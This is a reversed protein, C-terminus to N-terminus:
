VSPMPGTYAALRRLSPNSNLTSNTATGMSDITYVWGDGSVVMEWTHGCGLRFRDIFECGSQRVAGGWVGEWAAEWAGLVHERVAGGM